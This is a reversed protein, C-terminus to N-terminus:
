KICIQLIAIKAIQTFGNLDPSRSAFFTGYIGNPVLSIICCGILLMTHLTREMLLLIVNLTNLTDLISAITGFTYVIASSINM